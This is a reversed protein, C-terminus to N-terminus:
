RRCGWNEAADFCLWHWARCQQLLLAVGICHKIIDGTHQAARAGAQVTLRPAASMIMTPHVCRQQLCITYPVPDRAHPLEELDPETTARNHPKIVDSLAHHHFHRRCLCCGSCCHNTGCFTQSSSNGLTNSVLDTSAVTTADSFPTTTPRSVNWSSPSTMSQARMPTPPFAMGGLTSLTCVQLMAVQLKLVHPKRINRLTTASAVRCL